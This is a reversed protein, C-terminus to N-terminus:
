LLVQGGKACYFYPLGVKGMDRKIKGVGCCVEEQKEGCGMDGAGVGRKVDGGCM